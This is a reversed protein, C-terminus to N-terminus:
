SESAQLAQTLYWDALALDEPYTIKLNSAAGKVLHVPHGAWEMASAEDTIAINANRASQLADRLALLPFCQPTQACWLESRDLTETVCREDFSRKVTDVVPTALIAGCGSQRTYEVLRLIHQAQVCPRAADHVLVWDEDGAIGALAQLAHLVSDSREAGGSTRLVRPHEAFDGLNHGDDDPHLALVVQQCCDTALLVRLSHQIVNAGALPLYQKPVDGGMRAGIGAAPIVGWIRSKNAHMGM